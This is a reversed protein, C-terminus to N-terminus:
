SLWTLEVSVDLALTSGGNFVGKLPAVDTYDRGRAVLVHREGVPAGSTPDLPHWDGMWVEIWAHSQGAHTEGTLVDVDPYLYGSAYRSPIGAARLVALALHAYDQCVGRRARLAEVATTSVSTAGPEYDVHSRLWPGFQALAEAPNAAARLDEAVALVAEDAATMPTEALFEFLRDTLGPASLAAWTITADVSPTRDATEVVSSGVVRLERHPEHLDFAHVRSGWYDRYRYLNAAPQVDVRHEITFQSATDLPSIRAENFSAHVVDDYVFATTHRVRLRSAM